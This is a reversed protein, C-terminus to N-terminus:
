EDADPHDGAVRVICYLVVVVVIVVTLIILIVTM